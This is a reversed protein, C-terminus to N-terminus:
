VDPGSPEIKNSAAQPAETTHKNIQFANGCSEPLEPLWDIFLVKGVAAMITSVRCATM